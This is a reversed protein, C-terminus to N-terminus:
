GSSVHECMAQRAAGPLVPTHGRDASKEAAEGGAGGTGGGHVREPEPAVLAAPPLAPEQAPLEGRPQAAPVLGRRGGQDALAQELAQKLALNWGLTRGQDVVERMPAVALEGAGLVPEHDRRQLRRPDDVSRR